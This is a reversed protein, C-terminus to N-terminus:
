SAFVEDILMRQELKHAGSSGTAPSASEPRAVCRLPLRHEVIEPLRARIFYWAGMNWPEEQCWVLDTGDAYPALADRIEEPHLPYLQELRLLAVHDAGLKEREEELDFYVKGSCLVM